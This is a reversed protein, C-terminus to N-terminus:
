PTGGPPRRNLAFFYLETNLEDVQTKLPGIADSADEPKAMRVQVLSGELALFKSQIADFQSSKETHPYYKELGNINVMMDASWDAVTDLYKNWSYDLEAPPRGLEVRRVFNRTWFLRRWAVEVLKRSFEAKATDNALELTKEQKLGTAVLIDSSNKVFQGVGGVLVSIFIVVSFIPENRFWKEIRGLRTEGDSSDKAHHQM